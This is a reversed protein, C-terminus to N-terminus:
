IFIGYNRWLKVKNKENKEHTLDDNKAVFESCALNPSPLVGDVGASQV